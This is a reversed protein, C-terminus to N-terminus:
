YVTYVFLISERDESGAGLFNCWIINLHIVFGTPRAVQGGADVVLAKEAGGFPICRASSIPM